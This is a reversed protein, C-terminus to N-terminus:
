RAFNMLKVHLTQCTLTHIKDVEWLTKQLMFCLTAVDYFRPAPTMPIDGVRRSPVRIHISYETYIPRQSTNALREYTKSNYLTRLADVMSMGEEEMLILVIEKSIDEIMFATETM